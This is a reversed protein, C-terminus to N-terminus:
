IQINVLKERTSLCDELRAKGPKRWSRSMLALDELDSKGYM